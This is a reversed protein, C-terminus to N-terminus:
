KVKIVPQVQPRGGCCQPIRRSSSTRPKKATGAAKRMSETDAGAPNYPAHAGDASMGQLGGGGDSVLKKAEEPETVDGRQSTLQIRMENLNKSVQLEQIEKM